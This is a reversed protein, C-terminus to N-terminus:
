QAAVDPLDGGRVAGLHDARFPRANIIRDVELDTAGYILHEPRLDFGRSRAEKLLARQCPGALDGASRYKTAQLWGYGTKPGLGCIPGLKEIGGFIRVCVETPTLHNSM